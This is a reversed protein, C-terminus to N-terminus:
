EPHAAATAFRTDFCLDGAPSCGGARLRAAASNSTPVLDSGSRRYGLRGASRWLCSAAVTIGAPKFVGGFTREYTMGSVRAIIEGLVIYCGNCYRNDAGPEFLLPQPAVMRFYEANSGTAPQRSQFRPDFIDVIGVRHTLLQDITAAKAPATPYDPLRAGLTDSLALKGEGALQAIAARTFAKNISAINFRLDPTNAIKRERDALRLRERIKVREKSVVM